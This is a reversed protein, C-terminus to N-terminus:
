FLNLQQYAPQRSKKEMVTECLLHKDIDSIYPSPARIKDAGYVRRRKAQTLILLTEARTMAVYFLRREEQPDAAPKAPGHLPILGDECGAVFVVPFELGKAAHLTLLAVKQSRSEYVDPDTQLAASEIFAAADEGFTGAMAHVRHFAEDAGDATCAAAIGTKEALYSMKGSVTLGTMDRSFASLTALFDAFVPRLAPSLGEAGTRETEALLGNVPLKHAFGWNKVAEIAEETMDPVLTKLCLALDCYTACGEILKLCALTEQVGKQRWIGSKRAMQFPIGARSFTEALIEGQARTRFLVAFDSFARYSEHRATEHGGFDDFDMGTGGVMAEIRKGIAVAEARESVTQLFEVTQPGDIGSHVRANGPNLSHKRIVQHAAELITETSRYNRQLRIQKTGPFDRAFDKFYKVDSGRFGYISQDPDGIVCINGDHPCLSRIICYQGYNLDQYEDVFIYPFRRRWTDCVRQDSELVGVTQFILDEYDYLQQSELLDQYAQYLTSLLEPGLDKAIASLDQRPSLIQQKAAVIRELVAEARMPIHRGQGKLGAVAESVLGARDTEDIVAAQRFFGTEKLFRLCFAHFTAALPLQDNTSCFRALREGMEGAAKNTFTLALIQDPRATRTNILHAIRCTLTRT